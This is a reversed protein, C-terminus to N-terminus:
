IVYLNGGTSLLTLAEGTGSVSTSAMAGGIDYVQGSAPIMTTVGALLSIKKIRYVKEVDVPIIVSCAPANVLLVDDLNSLIYSAATTVRVIPIAGSDVLAAELNAFNQNIKAMSVAGNDQSILPTVISM